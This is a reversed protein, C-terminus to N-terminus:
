TNSSLENEYGENLLKNEQKRYIIVTTRIISLGIVMDNCISYYIGNIKILDGKKILGKTVVYYNPSVNELRM